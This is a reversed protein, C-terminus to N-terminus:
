RDVDVTQLPNSIENLYPHKVSKALFVAVVGMICRNKIKKKNKIKNINWWIMLQHIVTYFLFCTLFCILFIVFLSWGWNVLEISGILQM